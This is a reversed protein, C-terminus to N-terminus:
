PSDPGDASSVPGTTLWQGVDAAVLPRHYLFGQAEHCGDGRLAAAQEQTEVGEALVRLGLSESLAIVSRVIARDNPDTLMDNIFSRDIKLRGVPLRKLYALSSFGTGFDDVSLRVGLEQLLHFTRAAGESLFVAETVELELREAPLGSDELTAKVSDILGGDHVQVPSINVALRGPELGDERWQQFQRCATHLVWDGLALILRTEEAVPIFDAPSVSGLEPHEWRVLTEVGIARGHHLDIQPQYVLSLQDQAIAQRLEMEIRLRRDAEETLDATYFTYSTAGQAKARYMAADANRILTASDTADTPYLSIGIGADISIEHGEVEFPAELARLLRQARSVVEEQSAPDQLVVVFEDGGVRALLDQSPIAERLRGSVARLLKDGFPHGLSDNITKFRDLDMFLVAVLGGDRQATLAQELRGQLHLRNPLETLPDHYALYDLRAEAEKLRTIDQVMGVLRMPRHLSDKELRARSHLTREKDEVEVRFEMDLEGIGAIADEIARRVRPQDDPHVHRLLTEPDAPEEGGLGLIRRTFEPWVTTQDSIHYEWAGVRAIEQALRLREADRRRETVDEAIGLIYQMEGDPGALPLKRSFLVRPGQPTEVTEEFVRIKGGDALVERDDARLAEAVGAPFIDDDTGGVIRGESRGVLEAGARNIRIYRGDSADKLVLIVPLNDLISELESERQRISAAMGNMAEALQTAEGTGPLEIRHDYDGQRFAALGDLVKELPRAIRNGGLILGVPLVVMAALGLVGAMVWRTGAIERSLREKSFLVGLFLREGEWTPLARFSALYGPTDLWRGTSGQFLSPAPGEPRSGLKGDSPGLIRQGDESFAAFYLGPAATMQGLSEPTLAMRLRISGVRHVEPNAPDLDVSRRVEQIVRDEGARYTPTSPQPMSQTRSTAPLRDPSAQKWTRGNKRRLRLVPQGEQYSLIGTELHDGNRRVYAALSGDALYAYAESASATLVVERLERALHKKEEDFLVRRYNGPDQYESLLYLDAILHDTRALHRATSSTERELEQLNATLDRFAQGGEERAIETHLHHLYRDLAAGAVLLPLTTAALLLLAIRTRLALKV